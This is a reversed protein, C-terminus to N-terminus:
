HLRCVNSRNLRAKFIIQSLFAHIGERPCQREETRNTHRSYLHTASKRCFHAHQDKRADHSESHASVTGALQSSSVGPSGQCKMSRSMPPDCDPAAAKPARQANGDIAVPRSLHRNLSSCSCALGHLYGDRNRSFYILAPKVRPRV